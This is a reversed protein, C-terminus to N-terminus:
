RACRLGDITVRRPHVDFLSAPPNTLTISDFPAVAQPLPGDGFFRPFDAPRGLYLLTSFTRGRELAVISNEVIVDDRSRVQAVLGRSRGALASIPYDITLDIQIMGCASLQALDITTASSASRATYGLPIFHLPRPRDRPTLVVYGQKFLQDTKLRFHEAIYQFIVPVRTVNQVDDLPGTGMGDIGYIIEVTARQRDVDRVYKDQLLLNHASYTQLIPALSPQNLAIAM